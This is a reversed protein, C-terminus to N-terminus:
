ALLSSWRTSIEDFIFSEFPPYLRDDLLSKLVPVILFVDELSSPSCSEDFSTTGVSMMKFFYDYFAGSVSYNNLATCGTLENKIFYVITYPSTDTNNNANIYPRIIGLELAQPL